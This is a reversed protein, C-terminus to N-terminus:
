FISVSNYHSSCVYLVGNDVALGCPRSLKGTSFSYLINGELTFASVQGKLSNTMYLVNNDDDITVDESLGFM